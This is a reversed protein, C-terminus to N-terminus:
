GKRPGFIATGVRVITAGEEIAVPYDHTMGMSLERLEVHPIKLRSLSVQLEKLSRFYPRVEEPDERFPPIITLGEVELYSFQGIEELLPVLGEKSVGSKTEEGALNVEVYTRAARGRKRGEKDLAKALGVNGLSEIVSFLGVAVRSKNRQLHGIMHWEVSDDVSEKKVQAEQVYNEGFLHIGAAVAARIEAVGQTKSAALLKIEDPRRGCRQASESIRELVKLVNTAIDVM